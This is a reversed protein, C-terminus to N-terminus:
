RNGVFARRKVCVCSSLPFSTYSYSFICVSFSLRGDSPKELVRLAAFSSVSSVSFATAGLVFLARLRFQRQHSSLLSSSLSSPPSAYSLVSQRKRPSSHTAGRESARPRKRMRLWVFFPFLFRADGGHTCQMPNYKEPIRQIRSRRGDVANQRSKEM